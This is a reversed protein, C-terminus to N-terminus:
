GLYGYESAVGGYGNNINDNQKMATVGRVYKNILVNYYNIYRGYEDHERITIGGSDNFSM